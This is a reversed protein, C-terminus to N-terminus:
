DKEPVKKGEHRAEMIKIAWRELKKCNDKAKLGLVDVVTCVDGYAEVLNRFATNPTVSTCNENLREARICKMCAWSLKSAEEALGELATRKTLKRRLSAIYREKVGYSYRNFRCSDTDGDYDCDDTFDGGKFRHQCESCLMLREGCYPCYAKFGDIRVDWILTVEKDCNPCIETAQYQNSTVVKPKLKHRRVAGCASPFNKCAMACREFKDCERCCLGSAENRLCGSNTNNKCEWVAHLKKVIFPTDDEMSADVKVVTKFKLPRRGTRVCGCSKQKGSLISLAKVSIEKGCDCQCLLRAPKMNGKEGKERPLAKTVTLMGYRRGVLHEYSKESAM